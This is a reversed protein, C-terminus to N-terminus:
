GRPTLRLLWDEAMQLLRSADVGPNHVFGLFRPRDAWTRGILRLRVGNGCIPGAFEGPDDEAGMARIAHSLAEISKAPLLIPATVTLIFTAGEPAAAKSVIALRDLLATAVRDFRLGLSSAKVGTEAAVQLALVKAALNGPARAAGLKTM